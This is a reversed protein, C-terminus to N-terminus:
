SKRKKPRKSPPRPLQAAQGNGNTLRQLAQQIRPENLLTQRAEDDPPISCIARYLLKIVETCQQADNAAETLDRKRYVFMRSKDPMPIPPSDFRMMNGVKVFGPQWEGSALLERFKADPEVLCAPDVIILCDPLEDAVCILHHAFLHRQARSPKVANLVAQVFNVDDPRASTVAAMLVARKAEGGNLAQYMASVTQFEGHVVGTLLKALLHDNYSWAAITRTVLVTLDPPLNHSGVRVDVDPKVRSLPQPM